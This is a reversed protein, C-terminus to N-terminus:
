QTFGSQKMLSVFPEVMQLLEDKNKRCWPLHKIKKTKIIKTQVCVVCGLMVGGVIVLPISVGKRMRLGGLSDIARALSFSLARIFIKIRM